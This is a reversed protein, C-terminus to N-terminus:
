SNENDAYKALLKDLQNREDTGLTDPILAKSPLYAHDWEIFNPDAKHELLLEILPINANKFAYGLATAVQHGGVFHIFESNTKSLLSRVMAVNNLEVALLLPTFSPYDNKTVFNVDVNQDMLINFAGLSKSQIAEMIPVFSCDNIQNIAAGNQVFLRLMELLEPSDPAEYLEDIISIILPFRNQDIGLNPDGGESIWSRIGKLDHAEILTEISDYPIGNM